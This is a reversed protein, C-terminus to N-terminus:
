NTRAVRRLFHGAAVGRMLALEYRAIRDPENWGDNPWDALSARLRETDILAAAVPSRDFSDLEGRIAPRAGGVAVHWDAAQFGRRREDVVAPPLRDAFARRALSRTVGGLIYQREPISLCLSVLDRDITPDRLDIGWGALVGKNYVGMDVRSLAWLRMARGDAWPRYGLDLGRAAARAAIGQEAVAEERLATYGVLPPGVAFRADLWAWGRRPLYPGIAAAGIARWGMGRRALQRALRALAVPRGRRVLQPLHQLGAHSITLNGMQGTLLVRVGRARAANAIAETWVANSPNLVPREFLHFHRDFLSLPSLHSSAVRVHEITPHMAAAEAALPGEDAIAGGPVPTPVSPVATFALLPAPALLRAATTAVGGSDLGGSLHTAVGGDAVRLRRSVALDFAARVVEVYEDDRRLTLPETPWTWFRGRTEGGADFALWQGPLVRSIGAFFSADGTEPVMALFDAAAEVSAAYPVGPVAHIGKPMSAVAVVLANRHYHLPREGLPDRALTLRGAREDWLILAFPGVVRALGDVGWREIARMLLAPDSLDSLGAAPIALAAALADRNDIRVDAVMRLAGGGGRVPARDLDDEATLRFLRRGLAVRGCGAQAAGDPGYIAQAELM